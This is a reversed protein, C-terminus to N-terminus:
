GFLTPLQDESLNRLVLNQRNTVRVDVGFTRVMDAVQRWLRGTAGPHGRAVAQDFQALVRPGSFTPRDTGTGTPSPPWGLRARAV